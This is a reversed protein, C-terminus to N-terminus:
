LKYNLLLNNLGIKCNEIWDKFDGDDSVWKYSTFSINNLNCVKAISYSEMDFVSCYDIMKLYNKSYKEVQNQDYFYDTTFCTHPSDGIKIFKEGDEFPTIGYECIPSSDIDQYVKGIKIVEGVKHKKSGCSGINIIENFGLSLVKSACISANLKGLGSYFVPINDIHTVNNVEDKVAVIICKKM